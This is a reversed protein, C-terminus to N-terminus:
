ISFFQGFTRMFSNKYFRYRIIQRAKGIRSLHPIKLFGQLTDKQEPSLQDQYHDLFAQAQAFMKRYNEKVQARNQFKHLLFSASKADKAGVQNNGHQRYLMLPEPIYDIKGFCCAILAMWWDHMTCTEPIFDLHNLLARNIMVTCGTINNQVLYNRLETREPSINQFHFFSHDMVKLNRDVVKLDAHVLIPTDAGYHHELQQMRSYTKELKHPLWIDDQDCLAIYDGSVQTLLRFFNNQSSGSATKQPIIFIKDPYAQAYKQIIQPTKDQSLDDSIYLEWDQFTQSLISNLQQSLFAEGNYTAMLIKVM